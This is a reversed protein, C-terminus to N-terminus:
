EGGITITGSHPVVSEWPVGAQVLAKIIGAVRGRPGSPVGAVNRLVTMLVGAEVGDLTLQVSKVVTTTKVEAKATAM